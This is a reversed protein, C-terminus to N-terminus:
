LRLPEHTFRSLPRGLGGNWSLVDSLVLDAGGAAIRDEMWWLGGPLAEWCRGKAATGPADPVAAHRSRLEEWAGMFSAEGGEGFLVVRDLRFRMGHLSADLGIGVGTGRTLPGEGPDPHFRFRPYYLPEPAGHLALYHLMKVSFDRARLGEELLSLAYLFGADLLRLVGETTM